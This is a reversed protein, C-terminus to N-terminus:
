YAYNAAVPEPAAPAAKLLHLTCYFSGRGRTLDASHTYNIYVQGDVERESDIEYDKSLIVADWLQGRTRSPELPKASLSWALIPDLYLPDGDSVWTMPIPNDTADVDYLPTVVALRLNRVAWVTSTDVIDHNTLDSKYCASWAQSCRYSNRWNSAYGVFLRRDGCSWWVDEDPADPLGEECDDPRENMGGVGPPNAVWPIGGACSDGETVGTEDSLGPRSIFMQCINAWIQFERGASCRLEHAFGLRVEDDSTFRVRVVQTFGDSIDTIQCRAYLGQPSEIRYKNGGTMASSLWGAATLAGHIGAMLSAATSGDIVDIRVIDSMSFALGM